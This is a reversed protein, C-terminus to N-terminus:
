PISEAMNMNAIIQGRIFRATFFHRKKRLIIIGDPKLQKLFNKTLAISGPMPAYM